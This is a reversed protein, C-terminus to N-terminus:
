QKEYEYSYYFSCEADYDKYYTTKILLSNCDYEYTEKSRVKSEGTRNNTEVYEALFLLGNKYHFRYVWGNAGYPFGNEIEFNDKDYKIRQISNYAQEIYTEGNREIKVPKRTWTLSDYNGSYIPYREFVTKVTSDANYLTNTKYKENQYTLISFNKLNGVSDFHHMEVLRGRNDYFNVHLTKNDLRQVQIQNGLSDYTEIEMLEKTQNKCDTKYKFRKKVHNDVLIKKLVIENTPTKDLEQCVCVNRLFVSSLLLMLYHLRM